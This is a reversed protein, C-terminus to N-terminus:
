AGRARFWREFNERLQVNEPNRLKGVYLLLHGHIADILNVPVLKIQVVDHDPGHIVEIPYPGAPTILVKAKTLGQHFMGCRVQDYLENFLAQPIDPDLDPFVSRLGKVFQHKSDGAKGDLFQGIPEFYSLVIALIGFGAHQHGRLINAPDILWGLMQDEFVDIMDALQGTSLKEITFRPSIALTM